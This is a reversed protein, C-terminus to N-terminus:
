PRNGQGAACLPCGTGIQTRTIVMTVWSHGCAAGRWWVYTGSFPLLDSAKLGGNRESDMEAALAPFRAELSNCTCAISGACAPCAAGAPQTLPRHLYMSALHSHLARVQYPM